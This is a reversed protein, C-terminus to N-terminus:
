GSCRICEPENHLVIKRHLDEGIVKFPSGEDYKKIFDLELIFQLRSSRTRPLCISTLYNDSVKKQKCKSPVKPLSFACFSYAAISLFHSYIMLFSCCIDNFLGKFNNYTFIPKLLDSACLRM